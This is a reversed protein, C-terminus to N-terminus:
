QRTYYGAKIREAQSCTIKRWEYILYRYSTSLFVVLSTSQAQIKTKFATLKYDLDTPREYEMVSSDPKKSMFYFLQSYNFIYLCDMLAHQDKNYLKAATQPENICHLTVTTYHTQMFSRYLLLFSACARGKTNL